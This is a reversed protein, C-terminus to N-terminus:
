WVKDSEAKLLLTDSSSLKFCVLWNRFGSTMQSRTPILILSLWWERSMPFTQIQSINFWIIKISSVFWHRLMLTSTWRSRSILYIYTKWHRSSIKISDPMYHSCGFTLDELVPFTTDCDSFMNDYINYEGNFTLRKLKTTNILEFVCPQRVAGYFSFFGTSKTYGTRSKGPGWM